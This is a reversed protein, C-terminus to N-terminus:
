GVIQQWILLRGENELHKGQAEDVCLKIVVTLKKRECDSVIVVPNSGTTAKSIQKEVKCCRNENM